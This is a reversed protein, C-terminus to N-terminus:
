YSCRFLLTHARHRPAHRSLLFAEITAQREHAGVDL